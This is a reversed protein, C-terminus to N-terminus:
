AVATVVKTMRVMAEPCIENKENCCVAMKKDDKNIYLIVARGKRQDLASDKYM